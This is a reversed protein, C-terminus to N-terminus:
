EVAEPHLRRPELGLTLGPSLYACEIGGGTTVFTIGRSLPWLLECQINHWPQWLTLSPSESSNWQILLGPSLAGVVRDWLSGNQVNWVNSQAAQEVACLKPSTKFELRALEQSKAKRCTNIQGTLVIISMMNVCLSDPHPWHVDGCVRSFSFKSIIGTWEHWVLLM